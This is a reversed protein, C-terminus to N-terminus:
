SRGGWEGQLVLLEGRGVSFSVDRLIAEGDFSKALHAVALAAAPPAPDIM